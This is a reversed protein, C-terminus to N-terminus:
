IKQYRSVIATEVRLPARPNWWDPLTEMLRQMRVQVEAATAIPTEIVLEDHVTMIVRFGAAIARVLTTAMVDRAISSACNETQDTLKLTQRYHKYKTEYILHTVVTQQLSRHQEIELRPRLYYVREGSPRRMILMDLETGPLPPIYDFRLDLPPVRWPTRSRLTAIAAEILAQQHRRVTPYRDDYERIMLDALTVPVNSQRALGFASTGYQISLLGTKGISRPGKAVLDHAIELERRIEPDNAPQPFVRSLDHREPTQHRHLPRKHPM